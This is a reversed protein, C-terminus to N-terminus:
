SQIFGKKRKLLIYPRRESSWCCVFSGLYIFGLPWYWYQHALCSALGQNQSADIRAPVQPFPSVAPPYSFSNGPSEHYELLQQPYKQVQFDEGKGTSPRLLKYISKHTCPLFTIQPFPHAGPKRSFPIRWPDVTEVMQIKFQEATGNLHPLSM